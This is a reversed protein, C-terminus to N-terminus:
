KLKQEKTERKIYSEMYGPPQAKFKAKPTTDKTRPEKQEEDIAKVPVKLIQTTFLKSGEHKYIYRKPEDEYPSFVLSGGYYGTNCIIVNCFVLRSIAEALFYYSKTDMNYSIVIMHHIKGKYILFREIDFFDSCIAVGIRGYIGADLIYMKTSQYEKKEKKEFFDKEMYSFFTKGFYTSSVSGSRGLLPWNRPVHIVANNAVQNPIPESFDLGAIVVAGCKKSLNALDKERNLAVSLEPIIIINPQKEIPASNFSIFGDKIEQWVRNAELSSMQVGAYKNENWAISNDLTTQILGINLFDNM